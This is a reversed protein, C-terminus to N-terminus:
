FAYEWLPKCHPSRLGLAICNLTHCAARVQVVANGGELLAIGLELGVRCLEDNECAAM